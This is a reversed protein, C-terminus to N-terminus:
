QSHKQRNLIGVMDATTSVMDQFAQVTEGDEAMVIPAGEDGGSRIAPDLPIAGLFPMDKEEAFREGGGSGFIDHESGCDPCVFTSMNEVIGLVPTEHEAFMQLGRRADELAVEQPTTVIVSGTIPISQLLTLQTDGTGPPLDIVLYDLDGWEVDDVLQTLTNHVMAGRWIVPDDEGLMLGISMVGMGYAEPPVIKEDSTAKPAGEVGLMRPVNPGYMDADFIAVEAGRDALGAALNVSITSKGVGGKGSAVAIVNSVGPLPETETETDPGINEVGLGDDDDDDTATEISVTAGEAELAERVSARISEETPSGVAELALEVTVTDGDVDINTVLNESVIDTGLDPDEIGSLIERVDAEQM